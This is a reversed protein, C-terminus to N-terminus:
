ILFCFESQDVLILGGNSVTRWCHWQTGIVARYLSFMTELHKLITELITV